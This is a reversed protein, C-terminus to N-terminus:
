QVAQEVLPMAGPRFLDHHQEVFRHVPRCDVPELGESRMLAELARRDRLQELLWWHLLGPRIQWCPRTVSPQVLGREVLRDLASQSVAGTPAYSDWLQMVRLLEDQPVGAASALAHLIPQVQGSRRLFEATESFMTSDPVTASPLGAAAIPGLQERITHVLTARDLRHFLRVLAGLRAGELSAELVQPENPDAAPVVEGVRVGASINVLCWREDLPLDQWIGHLVTTIDPRSMHLAQRRRAPGPMDRHVRGVTFLASGLLNLLKPQAGSCALVFARDAASFQEGAQALLTDADRSNLVDLRVELTADFVPSPGAAGGLVQSLALLSRQSTGIFGIGGTQAHLRLAGFFTSRIINKCGLLLHVDDVLVIPPNPERRQGVSRSADVRTYDQIRQLLATSTVEPDLKLADILYTARGAAAFRHQLYRLLSTRGNPMDSVIMVSEGNGHVLSWIRALEHERGIFEDPMRPRIQFPNDPEPDVELAPM